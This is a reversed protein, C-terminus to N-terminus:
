KMGLKKKQRLLELAEELRRRRTEERKASCVWGVFDRRYSPALQDFFERAADDAALAAAFFPPIELPQTAPRAQPRVGPDLKALGIDTMRGSAVLREVRELNSASWKKFDTRPTFKRAYRDDDLRRILSDIWGFCLAEEVAADYSICATGTHKKYFVLWVERVEDHNEGLWARWSDRDEFYLEV